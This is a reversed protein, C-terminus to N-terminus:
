KDYPAKEEVTVPIDCLEKEFLHKPKIVIMKEKENYILIVKRAEESEDTIGMDNVWSKPISLKTTTGSRGGNTHFLVMYEKVKEKINAM